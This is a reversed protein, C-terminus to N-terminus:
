MFEDRAALLFSTARAGSLAHMQFHEFVAVHHAIDKPDKMTVEGSLLEAIVLRDDHIVYSNLAGTPVSATLPVIHVDINPREALAAIHACQRAMAPRDVYRWKVAQETLLFVFSRSEDELVTQRELRAQVARDIDRAPDTDMVPSLAARAYEPVQLLGSLMAPLFHREMKCSEAIAKLEAQKRWLGTEAVARWSTYEVNARRALALLETAAEAPVELATLIRDVDVVTPLQKGSEIRSIRSQSMACRAALREGSLGAAKRLKRLTGALNGATDRTDPSITM